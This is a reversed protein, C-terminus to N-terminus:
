VMNTKITKLKHLNKKKFNQIKEVQYNVDKIKAEQHILLKELLHKFDRMLKEIISRDYLDSDYNIDFYINKGREMFNVLLDLKSKMEGMDLIEDVEKVETESVNNIINHFSLMVDYIPNRGLHRNANVDEVLKDFPYTQHNYSQLTTDKIARFTKVFTDEPDIQNRLALTNMYFGIQNKLDSHGRGAIPTGIVFDKQRTYKYFLINWITLVGMFLSGGHENCFSKLKQTDKLSVYTGLTYGNYNKTSSREKQGPISLLPLVGSFTNLWYEKHEQYEQKTTQENEWYAYDKYQIKLEPLKPLTNNQFAEYYTLVDKILVETSWGDGIIHHINYYLVQKDDSLNLLAIRLLPGKELDFAIQMDRDVYEQVKQNQNEENSYDQYDFTFDFEDKSLVWQRLNGKNDLKFVTRLIEHREVTALIAKKLVELDQNGNLEIQSPMNYASSAGELQSIIWLRKQGHSVPYSEAEEIKQIETFINVESTEILIAHSRLTTNRFFDQFEIKVNFMTHYENKLRMLKLSHGGLDFFNDLASVEDVQLITKWIAVIKEEIENEPAVYQKDQTRYQDPDPLSKKDIKGNKTLPFIDMQVFVSPLMYKPLKNLITSELVSKEIEQDAIYYLTIRQKDTDAIAKTNKVEPLASIVNEIADLEIRHGLIKVQNDNRGIFELTGNPLFKGLDGTKYIRKKSTIGKTPGKLFSKETKEKDNLYGRGVCPSALLIEGQVGVPVKRMNENVIHVEFNQIPYRMVPVSYNEPVETMIFHSIDDSAETAGYTNVIPISPYLSLWRNVMSKTLTEANLIISELNLSDIEKKDEIHLLLELLYSPVLELVTIQDTAISTFFSKVDAITETDYIICKGGTVLSSFLQWVSIDFTHPANQAVISDSDISLEKIKAGIHNIMGLHEIMVGKPKGTSGSTYIVYALDNDDITKELPTDLQKEVDNQIKTLDIIPVNVDLRSLQELVSADDTIIAKLNANEIIQLVNDDPLSTGIPVYASGAKWTGLISKVMNISRSLMVGFLNDKQAQYNKVIYRSFQNSQKYLNEYTIQQGQSQVAIAKKNNKCQADILDVINKDLSFYSAPKNIEEIISKEEESRYELELIPAYTKELVEDIVIKFNESFLKLLKTDYLEGKFNIELYPKAEKLEFRFMTKILDGFEENETQGIVIGFQTAKDLIGKEILNLRAEDFTITYQIAELLSEKLLSFLEKFNNELKIEPKVFFAEEIERTHSFQNVPSLFLFNEEYHSLLISLTSVYFNYILVDSGNCLNNIKQVIEPNLYTIEITNTNANKQNTGGFFSAEDADVIEQLHKNWFEETKAKQIIINKNM